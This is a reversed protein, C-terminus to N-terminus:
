QRATDCVLYQCFGPVTAVFRVPGDGGRVVGAVAVEIIAISGVRLVGGAPQGSVGVCRPSTCFLSSLLACVFHRWKESLRQAAGHAVTIYGVM